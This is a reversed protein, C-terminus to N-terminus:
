VYGFLIEERGFWGYWSIWVDMMWAHYSRSSVLDLDSLEDCGGEDVRDVRCVCM